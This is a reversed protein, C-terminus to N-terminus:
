RCGAKVRVPPGSAAMHGYMCTGLLRPEGSAASSRGTDDRGLDATADNNDYRSGADDRRCDTAGRGDGHMFEFGDPYRRPANKVQACLWSQQQQPPPQQQHPQPPKLPPLPSSKPPEPPPAPLPPPPAAVRANARRLGTRHYRQQRGGANDNVLCV